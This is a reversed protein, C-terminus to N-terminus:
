EDLYKKLDLVSYEKYHKLTTSINKHRMLETIYPIPVNKKFLKTAFSKRFGHFGRGKIKIGLKEEIKIIERSLKSRTNPSWSFLKQGISSMQEEIVPKLENSIILKEKINKNIKNAILINNNGINVDKKQILLTERIRAGSEWLFVILNGLEKRKKYAESRIAEYEEITYPIVEKNSDNKKYKKYINKKETLIKNELLYNYFVRFSRLIINKSEDRLNNDNLSFEKIHKEIRENEVIFNKNFIKKFSYIYGKITKESLKKQRCYIIFEDFADYLHQQHPEIIGLVRKAKEERLMSIIYERNKPTDELGTSYQKGDITYCLKNTKKVVFVSGVYDKKTSKM